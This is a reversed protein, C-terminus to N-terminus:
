MHVLRLGLFFQNLNIQPTKLCMKKDMKDDVLHEIIVPLLNAIRVSYTTKINDHNSKCGNCYM